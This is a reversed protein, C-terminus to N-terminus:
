YGCYNVVAQSELELPDVHRRGRVGAPEQTRLACKGTNMCTYYVYCLFLVKLSCHSDDTYGTNFVIPKPCVETHLM